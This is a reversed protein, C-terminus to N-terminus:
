KQAPQYRVRSSRARRLRSLPALFKGTHDIIYDVQIAELVPRHREIGHGDFQMM